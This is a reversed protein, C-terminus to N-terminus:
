HIGPVQVEPQVRVEPPYQEELTQPAPGPEELRNSSQDTQAKAHEEKRRDQLMLLRALSRHFQRDAAIGYRLILDSACAPAGLAAAVRAGYDDPFSDQRAIERDMAAKQMAMSRTQQWRAAAMNEVLIRETATQPGHEAILEALILEFTEKNESEFLLTEALLAHRGANKSSNVKGQPTKPGKSLAGNARSAAIQKESRPKKASM